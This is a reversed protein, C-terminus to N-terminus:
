FRSLFSLVQGAEVQCEVMSHRFFMKRCVPLCSSSERPDVTFRFGEIMGQESMCHNHMVVVQEKVGILKAQGLCWFPM